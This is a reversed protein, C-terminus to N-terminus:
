RSMAKSCAHAAPAACAARAPSWPLDLGARLAADLVAEGEAVPVDTRKGDLIITATAIRTRRAPTPPSRARRPAAARASSSGSAM